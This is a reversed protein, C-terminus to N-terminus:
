FTGSSCGPGGPPALSYGHWESQHFDGMVQRSASPCVWPWVTVWGHHGVVRLLVHDGPSGSYGFSSMDHCFWDYHPGVGM